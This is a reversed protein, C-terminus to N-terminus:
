ILQVLRMGYRIFFMEAGANELGIVAEGRYDSDFPVPANTVLLRSRTTSSRPLFRYRLTKPVELVFGLGVAIVEGPQLGYMLFGTEPDLKRPYLDISEGAVFSFVSKWRAPHALDLERSDVVARVFCDDGAAGESMRRPAQGDPVVYLKAPYVGM